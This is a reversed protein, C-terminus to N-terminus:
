GLQQFALGRQPRDLQLQTRTNPFRLVVSVRAGAAAAGRGAAAGVSCATGFGAGSGEGCGAEGGPLAFSAPRAGIGEIPSPAGSMEAGVGPLRLEIGFSGDGGSTGTPM